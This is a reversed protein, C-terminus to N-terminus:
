RRRRRVIRPDPNRARLQRSVRHFTAALVASVGSVALSPALGITKGQAWLSVATLAYGAFVLALLMTLRQLWYFHRFSLPM